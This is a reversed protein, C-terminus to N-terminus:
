LILFDRKMRNNKDNFDKISAPVFSDRWRATRWPFDEINQGSRSDRLGSPLLPDGRDVMVGFLRACAEHRRSALSPYDDPAVGLCRLARKQLKDLIKADKGLLAYHFVPSSFEWKQRIV